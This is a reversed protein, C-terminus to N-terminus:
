GKQNALKWTPKRGSQSSMRKPTQQQQQQNQQQTSNAQTTSGISSSNRNYVGVGIKFEKQSVDSITCSWFWNRPWKTYSSHRHVSHRYVSPTKMFIAKALYLKYQDTLRLQRLFESYQHAYCNSCRKIWSNSHLKGEHADASEERVFNTAASSSVDAWSMLLRDLCVKQIHCACSIISRGYSAPINNWATAKAPKQKQQQRQPYRDFPFERKLTITNTTWFRTDTKLSSGKWSM